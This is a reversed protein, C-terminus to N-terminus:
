KSEEKAKQERRRKDRLAKVEAEDYADKGGEVTIPTLLGAKIFHTMYPSGVGLIEAARQRGILKPAKPKNTLWSRVREAAHRTGGNRPDGVFEALKDGDIFRKGIM